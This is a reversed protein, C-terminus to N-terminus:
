ANGQFYGLIGKADSPHYTWIDYHAGNVYRIRVRVFTRTVSLISHWPIFVEQSVQQILLGRNKAWVSFGRRAYLLVPKDLTRSRRHARPGFQQVEHPYERAQADDQNVRSWDNM